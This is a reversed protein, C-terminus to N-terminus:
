SRANKGKLKPTKEAESTVANGGAVLKELTFNGNLNIDAYVKLHKCLKELASNKDWFKLKKTWGIQSRDSGHKEDFLEEIEIAAIARRTNEPIDSLLKLEGKENFCEGIDSTGILYLERLVRDATIETRNSREEKLVSIRIQVHEKQLLQCGQVSASNEAYGAREAAKTANLDILYEECFREQMDTLKAM